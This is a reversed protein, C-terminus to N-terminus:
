LFPMNPYIPYNMKINTIEELKDLINEITENTTDIKSLFNLISDTMNNKASIIRVTFQENYRLNTKIQTEITKDHYLSLDENPPFFAYQTHGIIKEHLKRDWRIRNM